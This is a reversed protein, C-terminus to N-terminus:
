ECVELQKRSLGLGKLCKFHKAPTVGKATYQPLRPREESKLIAKGFQTEQKLHKRKFRITLM